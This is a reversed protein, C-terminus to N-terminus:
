GKAWEILKISIVVLAVIIAIFTGDGMPMKDPRHKTYPDPHTVQTPM